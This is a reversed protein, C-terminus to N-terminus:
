DRVWDEHRALTDENRWPREAERDYVWVKILNDCGGSVFRLPARGIDGEGGTDALVGPALSPAWSVSNAGMTHAEFSTAKWLGDNDRALVSISGDSSACALILGYDYPAWAISNVSSQHANHDHVSGWQGDREGM